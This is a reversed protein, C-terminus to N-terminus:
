PPVKVNFVYELVLRDRTVWHVSTTISLCVPNGQHGKELPPLVLLHELPLEGFGLRGLSRKRLFFVLGFWGVTGAFFGTCTESTAAFHVRLFIESRTM